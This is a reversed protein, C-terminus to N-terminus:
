SPKGIYNEGLPHSNMSIIRYSKVKDDATIDKTTCNHGYPNYKEPPVCSTCQLTSLDWIPHDETCAVCEQTTVAFPKDAPCKTLNNKTALAFMRYKYQSETLSGYIWKSTDLNSILLYEKINVLGLPRDEIFPRPLRKCDSNM